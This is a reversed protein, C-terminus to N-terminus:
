RNVGSLITDQINVVILNETAIKFTALQAAALYDHSRPLSFM